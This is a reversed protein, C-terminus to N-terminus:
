DTSHCSLLGLQQSFGRIFWLEPMVGIWVQRFRGRTCISILTPRPGACSHNPAKAPGNTCRPLLMAHSPM